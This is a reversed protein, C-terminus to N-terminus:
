PPDGPEHRGASIVGHTRTSLPVAHGTGHFSSRVPPFLLPRCNHLRQRSWVAIWTGASVVRVTVRHAVGATEVVSRLTARSVWADVAVVDIDVFERALFASTAGEGWGLDLVRDGPHLDLEPLLDELQWLSDPGM